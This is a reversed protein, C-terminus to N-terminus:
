SVTVRYRQEDRPPTSEPEWPRRLSFVVLVEGAKRAIIRFAEPASFSNPSTPRPVDAILRSVSVAERSGEVWSRWGYGASGASQLTVDVQQGIRLTLSHEELLLEKTGALGM